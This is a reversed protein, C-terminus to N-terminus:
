PSHANMDSTGGVGGSVRPDPHPLVCRMAAAEYTGDTSGDDVVILEWDTRRQAFISRIARDITAEANYAPM